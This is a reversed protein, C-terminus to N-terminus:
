RFNGEGVCAINVGRKTGYHLARCVAKAFDVPDIGNNTLILEAGPRWVGACCCPFELAARKLKALRTEQLALARQPADIVAWANALLVDLDGGKRTCWEALAPRGDLAEKAAFSQIELVSRFRKDEM